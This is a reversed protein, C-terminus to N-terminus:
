ISPPDLLGVPLDMTIRKEAIDVSILWARIFPILVPESDEPANTPHIVLLPAAENLRLKGDPTTAFEVDIIKGAEINNNYFACGILDAVYFTDADLAPLESAPVILQQGALLEADSISNAASLKLVIRGANKGVPLWHSEIIAPKASASQTDSISPALLIQRGEHFQTAPDLDTLLDCLLEGRRGQPRLLHALAAWQPGSQVESPISVGPFLSGEL